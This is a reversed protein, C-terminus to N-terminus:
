PQDPSPTAAEAQRKKRMAVAGVGWLGAVVVIKVAVWIGALLSASPTIGISVLVAAIAGTIATTLM